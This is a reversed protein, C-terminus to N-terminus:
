PRPWSPRCRPTSTSQLGRGTSRRGEAHGAPHGQPHVIVGRELLAQRTRGAIPKTTRMPTAAAPKDSLRASGRQDVRRRYHRRLGSSGSGAAHDPRHHDLSGTGKDTFPRDQVPACQGRAGGPSRDRSTSSSAPAFTAPFTTRPSCTCTPTPGLTNAIAQPDPISGDHADARPNGDLVYGRVDGDDAGDGGYLQPARALGSPSRPSTMSMEVVPIIAVSLGSAQHERSARSSTAPPPAYTRQVGVGTGADDMAVRLSASVTEGECSGTTAAANADAGHPRRDPFYDYKM